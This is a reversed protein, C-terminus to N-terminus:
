SKKIEINYNPQSKTSRIIRRKGEDYVGGEYGDSGMGERREEGEGRLREGEIERKSRVSRVVNVGGREKEDRGKKRRMEGIKM